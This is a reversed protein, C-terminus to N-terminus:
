LAGGFVAAIYWSVDDFSDPVNPSDSGHHEQWWDFVAQQILPFPFAPDVEVTITGGHERGATGSPVTVVVEVEYRGRTVGGIVPIPATMPAGEKVHREYEGAAQRAARAQQVITWSEGLTLGRFQSRVLTAVAPQSRGVSLLHLALNYAPGHEGPLESGSM